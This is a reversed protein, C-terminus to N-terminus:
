KCNTSRKPKQNGRNGSAAAIGLKQISLESTAPFTKDARQPAPLQTIAKAMACLIVRLMASPYRAKARTARLGSWRKYEAAQMVSTGLLKRTRALRQDRRRLRQTSAAMKAATAPHTRM